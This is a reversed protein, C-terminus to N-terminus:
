GELMRALGHLPIGIWDPRNDLEYGIEYICKELVYFDVLLDIDPDNKPLFESGAAAGLYGGLYVAEAWAVWAHTWPELVPRDEPRARGAALASAAAYDFSRLMGAVDRLPTRRFRRTALPRTPEGEFDIFVFDEGTFLVQGLHFDGHCRIRTADVKRAGIAKFRRDVEDERRTIERALEQVGEPLTHARRRLADFTRALMTHAGQYLSQQHLTSYPERGFTTDTTDTALAAHLEATRQGLKNLWVGQAGLLDHALPPLPTRARETFTGRPLPPTAGARTAEDALVREFFLDLSELAAQFANGRSPVWQQVMALVTRDRGPAQYEIAGALRPVNKYGHADLFSQVEFEPNIGEEVQRFLKLMVSEGYVVISNSQEASLLRGRETAEEPVSQLFPHPVFRLEGRAGIFKAGQRVFRLLANSLDPDVLADILTGEVVETHGNSVHLRVAAIVAHGANEEIERAREGSAFTVPLVYTEPPGSAFDVRVFLLWALPAGPDGLPIADLISASSRARGKSRFYRRGALYNCLIRELARRGEPRKVLSEVTQYALLVPLREREAIALPATRELGFWFFDHPGLSLPYKGEVEPFRTRGFLETPVMGRFRSLDLEVYQGYRSLNAVVLVHEDRHSRVFALVRHNDPHLFEISGRGFVEHQKRLGILRKMWWLLSASNAQQAEVNVAEYHYEPDVIVPLYLRQPNCRSFGANRDSSWQMPTRVGDRDGLFINDGMGIEDGYYLVPTGPLSFLLANMLEIRRRTRMLPALRRRIGLNIRANREEAYVKVMYDRDEDTVMELTLEDHNRLFTAWQCAEPIAPTQRLINVIPFSDELEVAMFMRPMLPFHFNMHCEDGAGFYAAADSPWQNAEALLMRGGDYRAEIHARLKRLFAHTEALNECNTGEREYLYPVADLRMGDVGMDFWLDVVQLLAEHVAPNDFNLDPQHAYFRHWYYARAVPDWAWNSSEFDQFIIRAEEFRNPADSWVYFDRHPHGAPARRARQFWAHESSTHNLVLETIVRIDRDHAERLLRAFDDRTGYSESVGTYDAIDYGGDRLPSPYFPLLWIATVGLDHLYDLKHVLGPLDGIGDGNQDNFARVHLEYVVADKYWLPDRKM